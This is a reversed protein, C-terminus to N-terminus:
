PMRCPPLSVTPDFPWQVVSHDRLLPDENDAPTLSLVVSPVMQQDLLAALPDARTSRLLSNYVAGDLTMSTALELAHSVTAVPGVVQAGAEELVDAAHIALM